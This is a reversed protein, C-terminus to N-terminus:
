IADKKRKKQFIHNKLAVAGFLLGCFAVFLLSYTWMYHGPIINFPLLSKRMYMFNTNGCIVNGLEAWCALFVFAVIAQTATKYSFEVQKTSIYYMAVTPFMFHMLISEIDYFSFIAFSYYNGFINICGGFIALFVVPSIFKKIGFIYMIGVVFCILHCLHWPLVQWVTDVGISVRFVMRFLRFTIMWIALVLCFIKAFKQYKRFLFFAVVLWAFFVVILIIHLPCFWGEGVGLKDPNATLWDWFSIDM